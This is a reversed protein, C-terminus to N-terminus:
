NGDGLTEFVSGKRERRDDVDVPALAVKDVEHLISSNTKLSNWAYRAVLISSVEVLGNINQLVLSDSYM